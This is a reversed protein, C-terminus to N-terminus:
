TEISSLILIARVLPAARLSSVPCSNRSFWFRLRSSASPAELSLPFKGEMKWSCSRGEFFALAAVVM